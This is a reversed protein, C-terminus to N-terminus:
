NALGHRGMGIPRRPIGTSPICAKSCGRPILLTFSLLRVIIENPYDFGGGPVCTAEFDVVLFADFPQRVRADEVLTEAVSSSPSPPCQTTDRSHSAPQAKAPATTPSTTAPSSMKKNQNNKRNRKNNNSRKGPATNKSQQTTNKTTPQASSASSATNSQKSTPSLLNSVALSHLLFILLASALLPVLYITSTKSDMITETTPPPPALGAIRKRPVSWPQSASAPRQSKVSTGFLFFFFQLLPLKM